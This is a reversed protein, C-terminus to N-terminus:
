KLDLSQGSSGANLRGVNVIFRQIDTPSFVSLPEEYKDCKYSACIEMEGDGCSIKESCYCNRREDMITSGLLMGALMMKDDKLYEGKQFLDLKIEMIEDCRKNTWDGFCVACLCAVLVFVKRM